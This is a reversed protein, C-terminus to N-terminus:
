VEMLLSSDYHPRHSVTPDFIHWLASNPAKYETWVHQFSGDEAEIVARFRVSFGLSYFMAAALVAGDDCDGWASGSERITRLMRGPPAILEDPEDIWRIHRLFFSKLGHPFDDYSTAYTNRVLDLATDRILQDRASARVLESM